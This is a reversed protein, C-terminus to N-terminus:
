EITKKEIEQIIIVLFNAILILQTFLDCFFTVSTMSILLEIHILLM